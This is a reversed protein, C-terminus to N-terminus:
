SKIRYYLFAKKIRNTNQASFSFSFNGRSHPYKKTNGDARETCESRMKEIGLIKRLSEDFPV